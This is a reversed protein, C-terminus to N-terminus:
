NEIKGLSYNTKASNIAHYHIYLTCNYCFYIYFISDAVTQFTNLSVQM